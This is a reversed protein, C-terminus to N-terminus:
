NSPSKWIHYGMAVVLLFYAFGFGLFPHFAPPWVNLWAGFALGFMFVVKKDTYRM